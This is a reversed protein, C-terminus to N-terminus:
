MISVVYYEHQIYSVISIVRFLVFYGYHGVM